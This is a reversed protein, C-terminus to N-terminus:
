YDSNMDLENKILMKCDMYDHTQKKATKINLNKKESLDLSVVVLIEVLKYFADM